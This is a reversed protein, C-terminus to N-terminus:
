VPDLNSPRPQVNIGLCEQDNYTAPFSDVQGTGLSVNQGLHSTLTLPQMPFPYTPLRGSIYLSGKLAEGEGKGLHANYTTDTFQLHLNWQPWEMREQNEPLSSSNLSRSWFSSSNKSLSLSNLISEVSGCLSFTLFGFLSPQSVDQLTKNWDMWHGPFMLILQHFKSNALRLAIEARPSRPAPPFFFYSLSGSWLCIQLFNM